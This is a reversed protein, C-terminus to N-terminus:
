VKIVNLSFLNIFKIYSNEAFLPITDNIVNRNRLLSDLALQFFQVVDSVGQVHMILGGVDLSLPSYTLM